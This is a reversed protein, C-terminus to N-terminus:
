MKIWVQLTDKTTWDSELAHCKTKKNLILVGWYRKETWFGLDNKKTKEEYEKTFLTLKM